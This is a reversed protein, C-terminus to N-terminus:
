SDNWNLIFDNQTTEIDNSFIWNYRADNFVREFVKSINGSVKWLWQMDYWTRKADNWITTFDSCIMEYDNPITWRNVFKNCLGNFVQGFCPFFHKLNTVFRRMNTTFQKMNTTLRKLYNLFRQLHNKKWFGTLSSQKWRLILFDLPWDIEFQFSKYCLPTCYFM